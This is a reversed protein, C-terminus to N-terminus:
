SRRPELCALLSEQLWGLWAYVRLAQARPDDDGVPDDLTDEDVELRVGLVLRVDNLFGLWRDAGDRDLQLRGGGDLAALHELVADADARKRARLDADTFRRFEAAAAEADVGPPLEADPRYADPLLRQLAPDEPRIASPSLGVMAELPDRDGSDDDNSLLLRLLDVAVAALLGVEAPRLDAVVAGSRTRRFEM